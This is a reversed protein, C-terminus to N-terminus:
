PTMADREEREASNLKQVAICQRVAKVDFGCGGMEKFM